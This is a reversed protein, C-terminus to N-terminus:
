YEIKDNWCIIQGTFPKNFWQVFDLLLLGDNKTLSYLNKFLTAKGNIILEHSEKFNVEINWVKKVEIPPAFQITKSRYPLGRWVRPAFKDGVKWRTSARITHYKPDVNNYSALDARMDSVYEGIYGNLPDPCEGNIYLSKWIKEVFFTEYGKRPHTAPFYRSFMLQRM